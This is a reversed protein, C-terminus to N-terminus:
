SLPGIDQKLLENRMDLLPLNRSLIMVSVHSEVPLALRPFAFLILHAPRQKGVGLCGCHLEWIMQSPGWNQSMKYSGRVSHFGLCMSVTHDMM